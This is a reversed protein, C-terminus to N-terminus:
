FVQSLGHLALGALGGVVTGNIRIYQLDPGLLLELRRSTETADWRAITGSVLGALEDDVRELVTRAVSELGREGGAALEPDDRLRVGTQAITSALHRRLGSDADTAESRLQSKADAWLSTAFTRLQPQGLLEAKLEEGRARLEDSTQLDAAMTRVAEDMQLRLPHQRDTAMEALVHQSREVLRNVVRGEVPGPLWWPSKTGLRGHLENGHAELYRALAGLAADLVPQHRNNRILQELAQGAVPALAVGDLRERALTVLLDRVDEDNLLDAAEVALRAAQGALAEAHDADALWGALRPIASAARLRAVVADPSLFSEQVFAGLTEGFRDKREVIIATHPIPLGLPRRFLATVAFWDALGGAMSAVATAQIWALWRHDSVFVTSVVFVAAVVALLGTAQRRTAALQRARHTESPSLSM